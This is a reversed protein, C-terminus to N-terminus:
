ENVAEVSNRFENYADWAIQFDAEDVTDDNYLLQIGENFANLIAMDDNANPVESMHLIAVRKGDITHFEIYNKPKKKRAEFGKVGFYILSLCLAISVVLYIISLINTM